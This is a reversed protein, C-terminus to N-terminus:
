MEVMRNFISKAVEVGHYGCMIIKTKFRTEFEMLRKMIFPGRFKILRKVRNPLGANDPYEWIHSMDFELLMFPFEYKEMRELEKEFRKQTINGAFEAVGGKREICLRDEWGKLTYDGEKMTEVVTGLCRGKVPFTWGRQERTDRIVEFKPISKPM